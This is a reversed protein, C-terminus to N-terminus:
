KLNKLMSEAAKALQPNTKALTSFVRAIEAPTGKGAKVKAILAKIEYSRALNNRADTIRQRNLDILDSLKFSVKAATLGAENVKNLVIQTWGVFTKGKDTFAPVKLTFQTKNEGVVHRQAKKDENHSTKGYGLYETRNNTM